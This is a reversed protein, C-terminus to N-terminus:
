ASHKRFFLYIKIGGTIYLLSASVALLWFLDPVYDRVVWLPISYIDPTFILATPVLFHMVSVMIISRLEKKVSLIRIYRRLSLLPLVATLLVLLYGGDIMLHSTIYKYKSIEIPSHGTLLLILSKRINKEMMNNAVLYDNTNVLIVGGIRNEPLIFMYSIYNEVLGSHALLPQSYENSLSWGMGYYSSAGQSVPVNDNFVIDISKASVINHGENLYMQLYKGMDAASSSIYGTSVQGWSDKTPYNVDGAIPFGFYNRHGTILGDEKSEKLSAASHQMGLPLFINKTVYDEYSEGSVAEVIEGLLAYNINAYQHKGYSGTIKYNSLSQYQGLGSTQNLLQRVTIKDADTANPLYDSIKDDLSVKGQDALQMICLATFSKSLSGIIFPTDISDCNGYAGSFLIGDQNVIVVAMGPFGAYQYANQLYADIRRYTNGIGTEANASVPIWLVYALILLITLVRKKL